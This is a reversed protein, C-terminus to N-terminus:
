AVAVKASPLVLSMVLEAVQVELLGAITVTVLGPPSAVPTAAPVACTVAAEPLMVELGNM